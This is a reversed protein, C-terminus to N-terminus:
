SVYSSCLCVEYMNLALTAGLTEFTWAKVQHSLDSRLNRLAEGYWSTAQNLITPQQHIRGFFAATMAKSASVLTRSQVEARPTPNLWWSVAKSFNNSPCLKHFLFSRCIDEQFASLHLEQAVREIPLFGQSIVAEKPLLPDLRAHYIQDRVLFRKYAEGQYPAETLSPQDYGACNYTARRYRECVPKAEDCKVKREANCQM